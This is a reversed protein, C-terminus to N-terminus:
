KLQKALNDLYETWASSCGGYCEIQPVLGIHSFTLITKDGEKAIEFCIKTDVWEDTKKLFTLNSDTVLWVIKNDPALEILKQRSYHMGGGASFSFEDGISDSSGTIEEAYGGVM